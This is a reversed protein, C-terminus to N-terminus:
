KVSISSKSFKKIEPLSGEVVVGAFVFGSFDLGLKTLSNLEANLVRGL